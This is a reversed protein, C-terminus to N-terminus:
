AARSLPTQGYKDKSDVDVQKTDLLQKVIAEQGCDAAWSLPTRGDNDKSDVDVKGTDLLQKVVAEHGGWAAWSLSTRGLFDKEDWRADESTWREFLLMIGFRAIWHSGSFGEGAKAINREYSYSQDKALFLAQSASRLGKISRLFSLGETVVENHELACGERLPVSM